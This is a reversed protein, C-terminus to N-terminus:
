DPCSRAKTSFRRGIRGDTDALVILVLSPPHDALRGRPRSSAARVATEFLRLADNLRCRILGMALVSAAVVGTTAALSRRCLDGRLRDRRSDVSYKDSPTLLDEARGSRELILGMFTFFSDRLLDLEVHHGFASPLAQLAFSPASRASAIV